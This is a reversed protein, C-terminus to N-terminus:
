GVLGILPSVRPVTDPHSTSHAPMENGISAVEKTAPFRCLIQLCGPTQHIFTEPDHLKHNVDVSGHNSIPLLEFALVALSSLIM